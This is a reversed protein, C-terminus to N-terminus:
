AATLARSIWADGAPLDKVQLMLTNGLRGMFANSGIQVRPDNIETTM